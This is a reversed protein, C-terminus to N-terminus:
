SFKLIRRKIFYYLKTAGRLLIGSNESSKILKSMDKIENNTLTIGTVTNKLFIM